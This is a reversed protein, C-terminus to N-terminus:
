PGPVLGPSAPEGPVRKPEDPVPATAGALSDGPVLRGDEGACVAVAAGVGGKDGGGDAGSFGGLAAAASSRCARNGGKTSDKAGSGTLLFLVAWNSAALVAAVAGVRGRVAS